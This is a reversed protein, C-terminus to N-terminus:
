LTQRYGMLDLNVSGSIRRNPADRSMRVVDNAWAYAVEDPYDGPRLAVFFAAGEGNAYAKFEKFTSTRWDESLNNIVVQFQLGDSVRTRGILVGTDSSNNAFSIKDGETIPTGTWVCKRPWEDALGTAIVGITPVADASVVTVRVQSVVLEDFLFLIASDDDPEHDGGFALETWAGTDLKYEVKISANQTGLDHAAIGVYSVTENASLALTWTAPLVTPRWFNDLRTSNAFSASFGSAETTATATGAARRHCTRPHDTNYTNGVFGTELVCSM